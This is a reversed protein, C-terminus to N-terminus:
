FPFCDILLHVYASYDRNMPDRMDNYFVGEIFFFGSKNKYQFVFNYLTHIYVFTHMYLHYIIPKTSPHNWNFHEISRLLM